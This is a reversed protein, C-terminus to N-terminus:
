GTPAACPAAVFALSLKSDAAYSLGAVNVTIRGYEARIRDPTVDLNNRSVIALDAFRLCADFELVYGNFGAAAFDGPVANAPYSLDIGDDRIDVVVPVLDFSAHGERALGFEVGPGVTARYVASEFFPAAPDDWTVIRFSATRGALVGDQAAAALPLCAALAAGVLRAM